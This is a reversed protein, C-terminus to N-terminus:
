IGMRMHRVGESDPISEKKLPASAEILKSIAGQIEKNVLISLNPDYDLGTGPCPLNLYNGARVYMGPRGCDAKYTTLFESYDSECSEKLGFAAMLEEQNLVRFGSSCERHSRSHTIKWEVKWDNPSLSTIKLEAARSGLVIFERYNQCIFLKRGNPHWWAPSKTETSSEM